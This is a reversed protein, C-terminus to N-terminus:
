ADQAIALMTHLGAPRSKLSSTKRTESVGTIDHRSRLHENGVAIRTKPTKDVTSDPSRESVSVHKAATSIVAARMECEGM